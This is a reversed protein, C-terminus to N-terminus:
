RTGAVLAGGGFRNALWRRTAEPIFVPSVQGAAEASYTEAADDIRASTLGATSGGGTARHQLWAVALDCTLEVIDAPVEALGHTFTVSIDGGSWGGCLYLGGDEITYSDVASGNVTVATVATIPGPLPLFTDWLANLNLTSTVESIVAGAADRIASSAINLARAADAHGQWATPLDTTQALPDLAM